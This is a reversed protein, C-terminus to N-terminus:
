NVPISSPIEFWDWEGRKEVNVLKRELHAGRVTGDPAVFEEGRHLKPVGTATLEPLYYDEDVLYGAAWMFRAALRKRSHSRASNSKGSSARGTSCTSSRAPPLQGRESLHLHGQPDPAHQKGRAGYLLNLSALRGPDRWMVALLSTDGRPEQDTKHAALPAACSWSTATAFLVVLLLSNKETLVIEGSHKRPM